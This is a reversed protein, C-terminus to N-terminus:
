EVTYTLRNSEAYSKAYEEAKSGAKVILHFDFLHMETVSEPIKIQMGESGMPAYVCDSVDNTGMTKLGENLVLEKLDTNTFTAGGMKEVSEGLVVYKLSSCNTFAYNTIETVNNGIKVAVVNENNTFTRGFGIVKNGNIEDPIVVIPDDGIYSNIVALGSESDESYEFCEVPTVDHNMLDDMTIQDASKYVVKDDAKDEKQTSKLSDEQEVSVNNTIPSTYGGKGCGTLSISALLISLILLRKRM